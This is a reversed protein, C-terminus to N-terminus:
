LYLDIPRPAIEPAPGTGRGNAFRRSPERTPAVQKRVEEVIRDAVFPAETMKGPLMWMHGPLPQGWTIGLQPRPYPIGVRPVFLDVDDSPEQDVKICARPEARDFDVRFLMRRLARQASEVQKPVPKTDPESVATSDSNFGAITWERHHMLTAEGPDLFFVGHRAVRPLDILHSKWFRLRLDIPLDFRTLFFEKLGSGAAHLFLDAEYTELGSPTRVGARMGDFSTIESGTRIHAGNRMAEDRLMAYLVRTNISRDQVRYFAAIDDTRVEPVQGAFENRSLRKFPVGVDAWRSEVEQVDLNRILAFCQSSPDEVAAPAFALTQLCGERTQRAVRVAIDRVPIAGGHYTGYHVWAENRISSHGALRPDKELLAVSYGSASLKMALWLGTVGGGSVVLDFKLAHKM